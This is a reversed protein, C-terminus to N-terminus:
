QEALDWILGQQVTKDKAVRLNKIQKTEGKFTAKVAYEGPPLQIYFWPGDTNLSAIEAGNASAIMLTVGSIFAGRKEAFVLKVNYGKAREEMAERENSSVGGFLYPFGQSTKGETIILVPPFQAALANTTPTGCRMPELSLLFFLALVWRAKHILHSQM